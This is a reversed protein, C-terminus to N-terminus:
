MGQLDAQFAFIIPFLEHFHGFFEFFVLKQDYSEFMCRNTLDNYIARSGRFLPCYSMSFAMFRLFPSKRTMKRLCTLPIKISWAFRWPVGYIHAIPWSFLWLVSFRRNTAWLEWVHIPEEPRQLDGYFGLVTPLLEDFRGYFAFVVIKKDNVECMYPTKHDM